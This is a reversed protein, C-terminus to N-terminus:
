GGRQAILRMGVAIVPLAALALVMAFVFMWAIAGAGGGGPRSNMEDFEDDKGM